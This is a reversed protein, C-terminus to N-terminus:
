QASPLCVMVFSAPSEILMEAVQSVVLVAFVTFYFGQLDAADRDWFPTVTVKARM